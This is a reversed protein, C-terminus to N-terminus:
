PVCEPREMQGEWALGRRSRPGLLEVMATPCTWAYGGPDQLLELLVSQIGVPTPAPLARPELVGVRVYRGRDLGQNGGLLERPAAWRQAPQLCVGPFLWGARVRGRPCGCCGPQGELWTRQKLDCIRCAPGPHPRTLRSYM